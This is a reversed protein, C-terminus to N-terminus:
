QAMYGGDVVMATGTIWRAADSMLFTVAASVDDVAGFGLPHKAGVSAIWEEGMRDVERAYMETYVAGAVISNIRIRRPALEMAASRVLGDVAAKAGSYATMGTHGKNASISSMLVLSAGDNMVNKQAAARVIGFSGYVSPRFVDDIRDQKMLRVPLTMSVGAAHFVGDLPGGQKVIEKVLEAAADADTFDAAVAHHGEGALRTRTEELRAADRGSVVVRAGYGALAIAAARGLGSSAGTVFLHRGALCDSRFLASATLDPASAENM